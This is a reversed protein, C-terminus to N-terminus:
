SAAEFSVLPKGPSVMEGVDASVKLVVGDAPARLAHEMKMAEVVLLVTGAAVTDGESVHVSLVKGPMPAELTGADDELSAGLTAEDLVTTRGGISIWRSGPRSPDRSVHALVQAGDPMTLMLAGDPLLRANVNLTREGITVMFGDPQARDARGRVSVAEDGIRWLGSM